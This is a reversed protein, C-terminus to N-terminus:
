SRAGVRTLAERWMKGARRGTGIDLIGGGQDVPRVFAIRYRQTGVRFKCGGGFYYWPFNVDKVETVPVDFLPGEETLFALRGDALQLLGGRNGLRGLVWAQTRLARDDVGDTTDQM